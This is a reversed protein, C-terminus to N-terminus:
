YTIFYILYFIWVTPSYINEWYFIGQIRLSRGSNLPSFFDCVVNLPQHSGWLGSKWRDASQDARITVKLHSFLCHQLFPTRNRINKTKQFTIWVLIQDSLNQTPLTDMSDRCMLSSRSARLPKSCVRKRVPMCMDKPKKSSFVRIIKFVIVRM